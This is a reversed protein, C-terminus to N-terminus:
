IRTLDRGECEIQGIPALDMQIGDIGTLHVQLGLIAADDGERNELCVSIGDLHLDMGDQFTSDELQEAHDVIRVIENDGGERM